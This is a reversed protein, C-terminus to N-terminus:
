EQLRGGEPLRSYLDHLLNPLHFGPPPLATASVQPSCQQVTPIHGTLTRAKILRTQDLGKRVLQSPISPTLTLLFFGEALTSCSDVHALEACFSSTISFSCCCHAFPAVFSLLSPDVPLVPNDRCSKHLWSPWFHDTLFKM